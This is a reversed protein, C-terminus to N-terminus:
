FGGLTISRNSGEWETAYSLLVRMLVYIVNNERYEVHRASFCGLLHGVDRDWGRFSHQTGPSLRRVFLRVDNLFTHVDTKAHWPQSVHLVLLM